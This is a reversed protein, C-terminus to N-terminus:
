ENSYIMHIISRCAVGPGCSLQLNATRCTVSGDAQMGDWCSLLQVGGCGCGLGAVWRGEEGWGGGDLMILLTM